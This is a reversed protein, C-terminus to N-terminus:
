HVVIRAMNGHAEVTAINDAELWNYVEDLPVVLGMHPVITPRLNGHTYIKSFVGMLHNSSGDYIGGGSNGIYTPASIMWYRAGDILHDLDAIEGSTPIPDNGLPCGVAYISHFIRRSELYSRSALTAGNPVQLTDVLVLLAADIEANKGILTATHQETTGDELYITVPVAIDEPDLKDALIDRVVHWATVVLTEYGTGDELLTSQLIVGSGVTSDGALQVTPGVIRDWRHNVESEAPNMESTIRDLDLRTTEVLNRTSTMAETLGTVNQHVGTELSDLRQDLNLRALIGQLDEIREREAQLSLTAEQLALTLSTQVSAKEARMDEMESELKSLTTSLRDAALNMETRMELMRAPVEHSSQDLKHLSREMTKVRTVGMSGIVLVIALPIFIRQM